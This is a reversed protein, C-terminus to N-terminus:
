AAGIIQRGIFHVGQKRHHNDCHRIDFLFVAEWYRTTGCARFRTSM